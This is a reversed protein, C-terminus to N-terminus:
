PPTTTSAPRLGSTSRCSSWPTTSGPSHRSPKPRRGRSRRPTAPLTRIRTSRSTPPARYLEQLCLIRAGRTIAARAAELTRELNRDPPDESVATQILGITQTSMEMM